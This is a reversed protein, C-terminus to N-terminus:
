PIGTSSWRFYPPDHPNTLTDGSLIFAYGGQVEYQGKSNFSYECKANPDGSCSQSKGMPRGPFYGWRYTGDSFFQYCETVDTPAKGINITTDRCWFGDTIKRQMVPVPTPAPTPTTPTIITPSPTVLVTVYVIQPTPTAASNQNGGACGATILVAMLLVIFLYYKM